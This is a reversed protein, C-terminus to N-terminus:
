SAKNFENGQKYAGCSICPVVDRGALLFIILDNIGDFMEQPAKCSYVNVFATQWCFHM